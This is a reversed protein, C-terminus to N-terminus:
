LDESLWQYIESAPIFSGKDIGADLSVGTGDKLVGGVKADRHFRYADPIGYKGMRVEFMPTDDKGIGGQLSVGGIISFVVVQQKYEADDPGGLMEYGKAAESYSKRIDTIHCLARMLMRAAKDM